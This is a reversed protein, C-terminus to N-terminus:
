RLRDASRILKDDKMVGRYALFLFVLSILPAFAGVQIFNPIAESATELIDYYYLFIIGIMAAIMFMLFRIVKLQGHRNKYMFITAFSFVIVLSVIALLPMIFMLDYVNSSGPVLSVVKYVYLVLSDKVGIFEAIPFFFTVGLILSAFFLYVSQIRQIM